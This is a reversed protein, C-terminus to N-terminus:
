DVGLLMIVLARRLLQQLELLDMAPVEVMLVVQPILVRGPQFLEQQQLVMALAAGEEQPLLMDQALPDVELGEEQMLDEM